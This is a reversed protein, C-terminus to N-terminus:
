RFLKNKLKLTIIYTAFNEKYKKYYIKSCKKCLKITSPKHEKTLSYMHPSNKMGCWTKYKVARVPYNDIHIVGHNSVGLNKHDLKKM